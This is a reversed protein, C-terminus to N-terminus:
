HCISIVAQVVDIKPSFPLNLNLGRYIFFLGMLGLAYPIYRQVQLLKSKKQLKLATVNTALLMPVTGLGFFLMSLGGGLATAQSIAAAIGLYVLGCPLFGNVIGLGFRAASPSQKKLHKIKEMSKSLFSANLKFLSFKSSFLTPLFAALLLVIGFAISAYQQLGGIFIGRGLLGFVVGFLSYTLLRGAHYTFLGSLISVNSQRNLPVLLGIPGCMGVCHFSGLFGISFAVWFDM